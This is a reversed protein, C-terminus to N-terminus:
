GLGLSGAVLLSTWAKLGLRPSHWHGDFPRLVTTSATPVPIVDNVITRVRATRGTAATTTTTIGIM